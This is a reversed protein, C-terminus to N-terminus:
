RDRGDEQARVNRRQRGHLNAKLAIKCLGWLFSEVVLVAEIRKETYTAQRAKKEKRTEQRTTNRKKGHAIAHDRSWSNHPKAFGHGHQEQRRIRNSDSRFHADCYEQPDTM